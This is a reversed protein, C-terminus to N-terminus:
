VFGPFYDTKIRSRHVGMARLTQEFGVVMAHTGSVYFTREMFDPIEARIMDADIRRTYGKWGAPASPADTLTYVTKIGLTREAEDFLDKFAIDKATRNSYLLIIPRRENRQILARIQSRYPTVGIGGAVLVIKQAPDRPLTFDGALQGASITDGPKMALLARKFSSPNPYFKVGIEVDADAPASAITFTRRNGRSDPHAHALTWDLYQGAEFPMHPDGAFRFHWVGDAAETKEKLTLLLKRKPSLLWSFVNGALLALEPTTYFSGIHVWPAYLLGTLAGYAIRRERNPPTTLPETLMVTAFFLIPTEALTRWLTIGISGPDGIRQAAIALLAVVAYSLVLDFRQVKRTVLLGGVLVFPLMPLTGVWWSASQGLVLATLVVGFAAPNFLHKRRIAFIYKSAMAWVSAWFATEIYTVDGVSRPPSILLVLILATIFFSEANAPADFAWSFVNNVAWCLATVFFASFLIMAAGYPLFGFAALLAAVGVLALLEYLVLRFMTVRNLVNDILTIM